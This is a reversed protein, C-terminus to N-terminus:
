LLYNTTDDSVHIFFKLLVIYYYSIVYTNGSHMQFYCTTCSAWYCEFCVSARTSAHCNIFPLTLDVNHPGLKQLNEKKLSFICKPNRIHYFSAFFCIHRGTYNSPFLPLFFAHNSERTSRCRMTDRHLDLACQLSEFDFVHSCSFDFHLMSLVQKDGFFRCRRITSVPPLLHATTTVRLLMTIGSLLRLNLGKCPAVFM